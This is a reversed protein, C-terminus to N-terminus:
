IFKIGARFGDPAKFTWMVVGKEPLDWELKNDIFYIAQGVKLHATCTIGVGSDNIDIVSFEHREQQSSPGTINVKIVPYDDQKNPDPKLSTRKNREFIM